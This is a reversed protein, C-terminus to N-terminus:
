NPNAAKDEESSALWDAAEECTDFVSMKFPLHELLTIFFRILHVEPHRSIVVAWRGRKRIKAQRIFLQILEPADQLTMLIRAQRMDAITNMGPRYLPDGIVKQMHQALDTLTVQGECSTRILNLESEITYTFPMAIVSQSGTSPKVDPPTTQKYFIILDFALRGVLSARLRNCGAAAAGNFIVTEHNGYMWTCNPMLSCVRVPLYRSLVLHGTNVVTDPCIDYAFNGGLM